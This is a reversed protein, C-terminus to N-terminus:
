VLGGLIVSKFPTGGLGKAFSMLRNITDSYETENLLKLHFKMGYFWIKPTHAQLTPNVAEFSPYMDHVVWFGYQPNPSLRHSLDGTVYGIDEDEDLGMRSTGTPIRMYYKMADEVGWDLGYLHMPDDDPELIEINKFGSQGGSAVSSFEATSADGTVYAIPEMNIVQYFKNKFGDPVHSGVFLVFNGIQLEEMGVPM